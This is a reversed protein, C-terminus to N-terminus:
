AIYRQLGAARAHIRAYIYSEEVKNSHWVIIASYPASAYTRKIVLHNYVFYGYLPGLKGKVKIEKTLYVQTLM